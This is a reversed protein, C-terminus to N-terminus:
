IKKVVISPLQFKCADWYARHAGQSALSHQACSLMQAVESQSAAISFQAGSLLKGECHGRERARDLPKWFLSPTFALEQYNSM